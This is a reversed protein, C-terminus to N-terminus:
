FVVIDRYGLVYFVIFYPYCPGVCGTADVLRDEVQDRHLRRSPAVHMVRRRAEALRLALSSFGLAVQKSAFCAVLGQRM